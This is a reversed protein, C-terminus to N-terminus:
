AIRGKQMNRARMISKIADECGKANACVDTVFRVKRDKNDGFHKIISAGGGMFVMNTLDLNYNNARIIDYVDASYEKLCKKIETSYKEPCDYEGNRMFSEIIYPSVSTGLRAVIEENVRNICYLVAKDSIAYNGDPMGDIFGVLDLTGGGIDILLCFGSVDELGTHIVVHGQMFVYVNELVVHYYTGEFKFHLEKTRMLYKKFGDKQQQFRRPPLATGLKLKANTMHRYKLEQAIGALTLLYYDENVTKDVREAVPVKGGVYYIRNQYELINELNDPRTQLPQIAASFVKHATKMNRNGHDIGIIETNLM